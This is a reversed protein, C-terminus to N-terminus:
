RGRTNVLILMNRARSVSETLVCIEWCIVTQDECGIFQIIDQYHWGQESCWDSTRDSYNDSGYYLVTTHGVTLQECYELVETDSVLHTKEM